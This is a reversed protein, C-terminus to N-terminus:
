RAMWQYVAIREDSADDSWAICFGEPTFTYRDPATCHHELDRGSQMTWVITRRDAEFRKFTLVCDVPGSFTRVMRVRAGPTLSQLETLSQARDIRALATM